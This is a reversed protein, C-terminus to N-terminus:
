ERSHWHKILPGAEGSVPDTLPLPVNALNVDVEPCEAPDGKRLDWVQGRPYGGVVVFDGDDSVRKHGVGAPIVIVDGANLEIEEGNPGGIQVIAHGSGIGLVEHATSHFHHYDFIGARWQAPWRNGLFMLEMAEPTVDGAEVASRYIMVPLESNPIAGDSGFRRTICANINGTAM